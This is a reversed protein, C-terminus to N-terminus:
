SGPTPAHLPPSVLVTMLDSSETSETFGAAEVVRLGGGDDRAMLQQTIPDFWWRHQQEETTVVLEVAPRGVPDMVDEHVEVGDLERAVRYLAARLDPSTNWDDLLEGISRILGATVHDPQGPGPTFQDFPEPSIGQPSMREIMQDRLREADTSLYAVPGSDTPLDGPGYTEDDDAGDRLRGSDDAGWWVQVAAPDADGGYQVIRRYFYEGPPLSLGAPVRASGDSRGSSAGNPGQVRFSVFAAILAVIGVGLAFTMTAGRRVRDRRKMRREVAPLDFRPTPALRRARDLQDRVDNM